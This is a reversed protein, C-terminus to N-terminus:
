NAVVRAIFFRTTFTTADEIEVERHKRLARVYDVMAFFIAAHICKIMVRQSGLNYLPQKVYVYMCSLVM